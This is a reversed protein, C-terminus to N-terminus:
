KLKRRGQVRDVSIKRVKEDRRAEREWRRHMGKGREEKKKSKSKRM